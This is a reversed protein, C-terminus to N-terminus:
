LGVGMRMFRRHLFKHLNLSVNRESIIKSSTQHEVTGAVLDRQPLFIKLGALECREILHEGFAVDESGEGFLVMADYEPMAKGAALAEVDQLTLAKPRDVTQLAKCSVKCTSAAKCDAVLLDKVDAVVDHRDIAEMAKVLAEVTVGHSRNCWVTVIARTYDAKYAAEVREREESTLGAEDALGSWDRIKGEASRLRKKPNLSNSLRELTQLRLVMLSYDSFSGNM